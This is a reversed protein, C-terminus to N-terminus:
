REDGSDIGEWILAKKGKGIKEVHALMKQRHDTFTGTPLRQYLLQFISFSYLPYRFLITHSAFLSFPKGLCFDSTTCDIVAFVLISRTMIM